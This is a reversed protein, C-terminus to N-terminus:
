PCRWRVLERTYPIYLEHVPSGDLNTGFCWLEADSLLMALDHQRIPDINAGWSVVVIGGSDRALRALAILTRDNDPGVVDVGARQAALMDKPDTAKYAYANGKVVRGMGWRQAFGIDKRLTPDNREADAKSPNLGISVLTRAGGFERTLEYRYTGCESFRASDPRRSGISLQRTM